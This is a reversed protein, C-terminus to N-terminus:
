PTLKSTTLGTLLTMVHQPMMECCSEDYIGLSSGNAMMPFTLKTSRDCAIEQLIQQLM